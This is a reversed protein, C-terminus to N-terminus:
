QIACWGRQRELAAEIVGHLNMEGLAEGLYGYMDLLSVLGEPKTTILLQLNERSLNTPTPVNGDHAKVFDEWKLFPEDIFVGDPLSIDERRLLARLKNIRNEIIIARSPPEEEERTRRLDAMSIRLSAIDSPKEDDYFRVKEVLEKIDMDRPFTPGLLHGYYNDVTILLRELWKKANDKPTIYYVTYGPAQGHLESVGFSGRANGIRKELYIPYATFDEGSALLEDWKENLVFMNELEPIRTIVESQSPLGGMGTDLMTKGPHQYWGRFSNALDNAEAYVNVKRACLTRSQSHDDSLIKVKFDPKFDNTWCYQSNYEKDNFCDQASEPPSCEKAVPTETEEEISKLLENMEVVSIERKRAADMIDKRSTYTASKPKLSFLKNLSNHHKPALKDRLQKALDIATLGDNNESILDTYPLLLKLVPKNTKYSEKGNIINKLISMLITDGSANTFNPSLGIEEFLFPATNYYSNLTLLKVLNYYIKKHIYEREEKDLNNVDIDEALAIARNRDQETSVYLAANLLEDLRQRREGSMPAKQKHLEAAIMWTLDHLNHNPDIDLAKALLQLNKKDYNSLDKKANYIILPDM